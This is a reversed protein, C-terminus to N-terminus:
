ESLVPEVLYWENSATSTPNNDGALWLGLDLWGIRRGGFFPRAPVLGASLSNNAVKTYKQGAGTTDYVASKYRIGTQAAYPSAFTSTYAGAGATTVNATKLVAGAASYLVTKVVQNATGAWYFRIGTIEVASGSRVFFATGSTQDGNTDAPADTNNDRLTDVPSFVIAAEESGGGGGDVITHAVWDTGDSGIVVISDGAPVVYNGAVDNIKESGHRKVTVTSSGIIYLIITRAASAPPLTVNREASAIVFASGDKTTTDLTVNTTNITRHTLRLGGVLENIGTTNGVVAGSSAAQYVRKANHWIELAGGALEEDSIKIEAEGESAEEDWALSLARMVVVNSDEDGTITTVLNEDSDGTVDGDFGIFRLTVLNRDGDNAVEFQEGFALINAQPMETGDWEITLEVGNFLADLWHAM